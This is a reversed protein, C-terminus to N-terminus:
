EVRGGIRDYQHSFGFFRNVASLGWVVERDETVETLFGAGGWNVLTNGNDLPQVDGQRDTDVAQDWDFTWVRRFTRDKEDLEYRAAESYQGVAPGNDFLLIGGEVEIPNHQQQFLDDEAGDIAFDSPIYSRSGVLTWDVNGGPDISVVTSIRHFSVLLGGDARLNVSNAHTWDLWTTYYNYTQAHIVDMDPEWLDWTSFLQVPNQGDADRAVVRDGAVLEDGVPRPDAELVAIRGDSLPAMAHHVYPIPVFEAEGTLSVHYVGGEGTELDRSVALVHVTTGDEDLFADAPAYASDAEWHWVIRGHDDVIIVRGTDGEVPLLRFGSSAGEEHAFLDLNVPPIDVSPATYPKESSECAFDGSATRVRWLVEADPALGALLVAHETAAAGDDVSGHEADGERWLVVSSGSANTTWRITAVGPELPAPELTPTTLPCLDANEPEGTDGTEGTDPGATGKHAPHCAM